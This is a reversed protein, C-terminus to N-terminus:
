AVPMGGVSLDMRGGCSGKVQMYSRRYWKWKIPGVKRAPVFEDVNMKGAKQTFCLSCTFKPLNDNMESDQM